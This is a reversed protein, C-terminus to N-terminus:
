ARSGWLRLGDVYAPEFRTEDLCHMRLVPLLEFRVEGVVVGQAAGRIDVTFRPDLVGQRETPSVPRIDFMEPGATM